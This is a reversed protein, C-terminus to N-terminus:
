FKLFMYVIHLDRFIEFLVDSFSLIKIIAYRKYKEGFIRFLLVRFPSACVTSQRNCSTNINQVCEINNVAKYIFWHM